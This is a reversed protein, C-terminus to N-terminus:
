TGGRDRGHGAPVVYHDAAPRNAGADGSPKRLRPPSHQNDFAPPCDTLGGACVQAVQGRVARIWIAPESDHVGVEVVERGVGRGRRERTREGSRDDAPASNEPRVVARPSHGSDVSGIEESVGFPLAGVGGRLLIEIDAGILEAVATATTGHAVLERRHKCSVATGDVGKGEGATSEAGLLDVVRPRGVHDGVAGGGHFPEDAFHLTHLEGRAPDGADTDVADHVLGAMDDERRAGKVRGEDQPSRPDIGGGETGVEREVRHKGGLNHEGLMQAGGIVVEVWEGAKSNRRRDVM